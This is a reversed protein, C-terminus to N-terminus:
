LPKKVGSARFVLLEGNELQHNLGSTTIAIALAERPPLGNVSGHLIIGSADSALAADAYRLQWGHERAIRELFVSLALGEIEWPPAVSATWDWEPGHPAIPRTVAGAASFTIETGGRGSVSRPGERLEVVGTRVRLRLAKDIMRVEFQTGVDRATAVATRVEFQGSTRDTDLYVAGSSLEIVSTSLMRARSGRDLRVSTGDSFRLAVRASPDTEIWEGARVVDRPSLGRTAGSNAMDSSRRPNGDIREVVAVVQDAPTPARDIRTARGVIVVVAAATALVATATLLRRRITRRRHGLEWQHHVAARVRAARADPVSPRAGALRLLRVTHDEDTSDMPSADDNM